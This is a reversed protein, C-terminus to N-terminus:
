SSIIPGAKTTLSNKPLPKYITNKIKGHLSKVAVDRTQCSRTQKSTASSTTATRRSTKTQKLQASNRSGTKKSHKAVLKTTKSQATKNRLPDATCHKTTKSSNVNNKDALQCPDNEPSSYCSVQVPTIRSRFLRSHFPVLTTVKQPRAELQGHTSLPSSLPPSISGIQKQTFLRAIFECINTRKYRHVIESHTSLSSSLPPSISGTQKQTFLRAIFKCINTRTYRYVIESHTYSHTKVLYYVVTRNSLTICQTPILLTSNYIQTQFMNIKKAFRNLFSDTVREWRTQETRDTKRNKTRGKRIRRTKVRHWIDTTGRKGIERTTPGTHLPFLFFINSCSNKKTQKTGSM